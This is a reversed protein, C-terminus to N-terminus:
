PKPQINFHHRLIAAAAPQGGFILRDICSQIAAEHANPHPPPTQAPPAASVEADVEDVANKVDTATLLEQIHCAAAWSRQAFPHESLRIPTPTRPEHNFCWSLLFRALEETQDVIQQDTRHPPEGKLPTADPKNAWADWHDQPTYPTQNM